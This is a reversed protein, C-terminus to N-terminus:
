EWVGQVRLVGGSGVCLRLYACVSARVWVTQLAGGPGGGAGVHTPMPGRPRPQTKEVTSGPRQVEEGRPQRAPSCSRGHFPEDRRAM